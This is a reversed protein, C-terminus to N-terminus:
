PPRSPRMKSYDIVMLNKEPVAYAVILNTGAMRQFTESEKVLLVTPRFNVPRALTNELEKKLIPYLTPAEEAAM